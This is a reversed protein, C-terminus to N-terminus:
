PYRWGRAKAPLFVGISKSFILGIPNQPFTDKAIFRLPYISPFFPFFLGIILPDLFSEHIAIVILPGRTINKANERGEIKLDGFLRLLFYFFILLVKQFFYYLGSQIQRETGFDWRETEEWFGM